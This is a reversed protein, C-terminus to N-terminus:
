PAQDDFAFVERAVMDAACQLAAKRVLLGINFESVLDCLNM